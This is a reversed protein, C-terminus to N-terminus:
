RCYAKPHSDLIVIKHWSVTIMHEHIKSLEEIKKRKNKRIDITLQKINYTQTDTHM